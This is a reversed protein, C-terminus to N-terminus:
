DETEPLAVALPRERYASLGDCEYPTTEERRWLLAHAPLVARLAEVLAAQAVTARAPAERPPAPVPEDLRSPAIASEGDFGPPLTNAWGPHALM